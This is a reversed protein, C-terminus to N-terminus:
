SAVGEVQADVLSRWAGHRAVLEGPPGTEVIRGGDLVAVLDADAVTSLRHAVVITTRGRRAEALAAAIAEENEGDLSSTAEDLVLIPADRLLARAIAVRQREGGSLRAGREGVQADLGGPLRGVVDDLQAARVVRSIEDGSANVRALAINERISGHFLVIDQSVVGIMGRVQDLPLDRLDNGDIRVVGYDPDFVRQLLHVVTSKGAGSRGVLALTAGAPVDISVDQLAVRDSGPYSFGVGDLAVPPPAAIARPPVGPKDKVDPEADLLACIGSAAALGYFGEHWYNQLDALPRFCEASLFLVLLVAAADIAGNAHRLAAIVVAIGTGMGMAANTVTYVGLSAALSRSTAARLREAEAALKDGHREAAGLAVLTTMGQVADTTKAAYEAYMDWHKQGREGLLRRWLQRATPVVVVGVVVVAAVWIDLMALFVVLAGPVVVATVAQPLYFGVYGKLAEVGDVLTAQVDGVRRRVLHGPGLDFLRDVMRARIRENVQTATWTACQDRAWLLLLRAVVMVAALVLPATLETMQTGPQDAFVRRVVAALAFGAGVAAAAAAVGCLITLAFPLPAYRAFGVLRRQVM